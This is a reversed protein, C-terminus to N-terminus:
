LPRCRRCCAEKEQLEELSYHWWLKIAHCLQLWDRVGNHSGWWFLPGSLWCPFRVQPPPGQQAEHYSSPEYQGRVRVDNMSSTRSLSGLIERAQEISVSSGAQQM